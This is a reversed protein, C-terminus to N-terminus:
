LMLLLLLLFLIHFILVVFLSFCFFLFCLITYLSICLMEFDCFLNNLMINRMSLQKRWVREDWARKREQREWKVYKEASLSIAERLGAFVIVSSSVGLVFSLLPLCLRRCCCCHREFPPEDQSGRQTHTHTHTHEHVHSLTDAATNIKRNFNQGPKHVSKKSTVYYM